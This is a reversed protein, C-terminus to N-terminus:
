RSKHHVNELCLNLYLQLQEVKSKDFIPDKNIDIESIQNTTERIKIASQYTSLPSVTSPEM